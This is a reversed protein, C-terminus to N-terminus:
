PKEAVSIHPDCGLVIKVLLGLHRHPHAGQQPLLFWPLIFRICNSSFLPCSGSSRNTLHHWLWWLRPCTDAIVFQELRTGAPLSQTTPSSNEM